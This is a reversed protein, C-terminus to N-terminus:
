FAGGHAAKPHSNLIVEIKRALQEGTFPKAMIATVGAGSARRLVTRNKESTVMLVAVSRTFASSRIKETLTIGDTDPMHLDTVVIDPKESSLKEIAQEASDAFVTNYGRNQLFIGTLKRITAMDDVILVKKEM